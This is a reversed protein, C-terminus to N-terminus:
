LLEKLAEALPTVPRGLVEAFDNSQVDLVGNKIDNHIATQYNVFGEPLNEKTLLAQYEDASLSAVEFEKGSAARLAAALEGYTAPPASLELIGKKDYVNSLVRAAAEAYDRQPAWGVRGDGAGYAFTGTKLAGDLVFKENELYWNNRLFVHAIGSDLILQETYAHDPAIICKSAAANALSTYAIFTVGAQKAAEVVNSHQQQRSIEGGPLSSIFLLRDVGQFASKLADLNTYDGIRVEFGEGALEKAKATDRALAIIENKPVYTALYRLVHKGLKGTAGTLLYKTM